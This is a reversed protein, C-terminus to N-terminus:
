KVLANVRARDLFYRGDVKKALGADVLRNLGSRWPKWSEVSLGRRLRLEEMTGDTEWLLRFGLAMFGHRSRGMKKEYDLILRQIPRMSLIVGVKDTPDVEFKRVRGVRAQKPTAERIQSGALDLFEIDVEGALEAEVGFVRGRFKKAEEPTFVTVFEGEFEGHLLRGVRQAFQERAGGAGAVEIVLRIDTLSLGRDGIRSVVCVDSEQVRELKRATASYIFPVDLADALAQGQEIWDCFILARGRRKAILNKVYTTKASDSPVTVVTIKPRRLAGSRILEAWRIAVPFGSLAVILHQRGDERWATGSLGLRYKTKIFALKSFTNAPLRQAEDAIILDWERDLYKGAGQYTSVTIEAESNTVFLKLRERWQDMLMTSDGLLLVRGRFHNLIACTILTKGSGPPYNALIAGKHLFELVARDIYTAGAEAQKKAIIQMLIDPMGGKKRWHEPAVPNPSYPLIGDRVLTAVLKIWADGGKIKFTGDAQRKGMFKGYKRKFTAEDGQTLTLSTRTGDIVAGHEPARWGLEERMWAPFPTLLDMSRSVKAKIFAPEQSVVWGFIPMKIGRYHILWAEHENIPLLTYPRTVSAKIADTDIEAGEARAFKAITAAAKTEWAELEARASESAEISARLTSIRADWNNIDGMGPFVKEENLKGAKLM